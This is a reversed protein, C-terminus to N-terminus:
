LFALVRNDIEEAAGSAVDSVEEQHGGQHLATKV